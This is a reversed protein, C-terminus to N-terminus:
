KLAEKLSNLMGVIEEESNYRHLCIRIREQGENVTPSLIPCVDYGNNVLQKAVRKVNRNGLIMVGQITSLSSTRDLISGFLSTFHDIFCRVKENLEIQWNMNNALTNFAAKISVISHVPLATTYIFSRSFNILYNTLTKNGVVCAGHVGMAKGFTYIRAFIKSHLDKDVALGAGMEGIVGTSHAEDLVISAHYKEALVVLDNLPCVDGDMSYISEVVIFKNVSDSRKLKHELDALDNHRFMMKSAMSLRIGDKISAHSLEDYYVIDGRSPIASLVGLNANYGSNFILSSEGKFIQALNDELEEVITSNGSILRSGTAGVRDEAGSLILEIENKLEESRSLGLYDNSCFDVLAKSIPLSRFNGREKRKNLEVELRNTIISRM